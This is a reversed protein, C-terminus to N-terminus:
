SGQGPTDEIQVVRQEDETLELVREILHRMPLNGMFVNQIHRGELPLM